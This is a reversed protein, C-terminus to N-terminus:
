SKSRRYGLFSLGIIITFAIISLLPIPFSFILMDKGSCSPGTDTCPKIPEPIVGSYLLGHYVAILWGPIALALTYIWIEADNRWVAIGLIIALSFMFIRQYWCLVCPMQGMVEGIFLASLTSLLAVLWAAFIFPLSKHLQATAAIM